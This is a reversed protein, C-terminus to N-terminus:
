ASKKAKCGSGGGDKERSEKALCELMSLAARRAEENVSDYANLLRRHEDTLSERVRGDGHTSRTDKYEKGFKIEDFPVKSMESIKSIVRDPVRGTTRWQSITGTSRYGLLKSLKVDNDVGSARYIRFIIENVKLNKTSMENKRLYVNGM